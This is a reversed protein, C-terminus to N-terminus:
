KLDSALGGEGTFPGWYSPRLGRARPEQRLLHGGAFHFPSILDAHKGAARLNTYVTCFM